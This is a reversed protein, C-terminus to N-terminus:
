SALIPPPPRHGFKARTRLRSHVIAPNEAHDLLIARTGPELIEALMERRRLFDERHARRELRRLHEPKRGGTHLTLARMEVTGIALEDGSYHLNQGSYYV